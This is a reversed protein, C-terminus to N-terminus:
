ISAANLPPQELRVGVVDRQRNRLAGAVTSTLLM